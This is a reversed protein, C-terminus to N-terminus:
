PPTPGGIIEIAVAQSNGSFGKSQTVAGDTVTDDKSNCCVAYYGLGYNQAVLRTYGTPAAAWSGNIAVFFDLLTSTNDSYTLTVAPTTVDNGASSAKAFVGIPNTTSVNRIVVAIMAGSSSFTGSTHNTATAIASVLRFATSGDSNSIVDTWTPVTGGAAPKSPVTTGSGTAWILILDGPQQAPITVSTSSSVNSGVITSRNRSVPITITPVGGAVSVTAATPRVTMMLSPRGGTVTVTAATAAATVNNHVVPVGGAVSVSAPSPVVGSVLSAQGGTVTLNAATPEINVPQYIVLPTGGQVSVSAATPRLTQQLRPVGGSVSVTAGTPRITTVLSPTHGTISVSAPTPQLKLQEFSVPPTGGAVEVTAGTPRVTQTLRPSHGTVSVSAATPQLQLLQGLSPTGGSIEVQAATPWVTINNRVTPTGGTVTVGAATPTLVAETSPHSGFVMVQAPMPSVHMEVWWGGPASGEVVGLNGEYKEGDVLESRWGIIM